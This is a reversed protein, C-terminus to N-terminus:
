FRYSVSAGVQRSSFRYVNSNSANRNYNYSLSASARRLFAFSLSAGYSDYEDSRDTFLFSNTASYESKGRSASLSLFFRQLVRQGVSATFRTGQITQDNFYSTSVDRNGSLSISTTLTPNYTISADYVPSDNSRGGAADVKRREMGWSASISLRDTPHWRTRVQPRIYSMDDGQSLDDRGVVSGASVGFKPTFQYNLWGTVSIQTWDSGTWTATRSEPNALRRSFNASIDASAKDGPAYTVDVGTATTRENNQGGTEAVIPSNSIYAISTGVRWADFSWRGALRVSSDYTDSLLRSSYMSRTIAGDLTWTTGLETILGLTVTQLSSNVPEGPVRLLGNGYQFSYSAYPRLAAPGWQALPGPKAMASTISSLAGPSSPSGSSAGNGSNQVPPANSVRPQGMVVQAHACITSSFFVACSLVFKSSLITPMRM